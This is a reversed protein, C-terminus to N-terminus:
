QARRDVNAEDFTHMRRHASWASELLAMGLTAGTGEGLRMNLSLLPELGLRRLQLVHGPERSLHGAFLYEKVGPAIAEAILAAAGVTFGDLVVPLRQQAARIIAGVLAATELGGIKQLVGLPDSHHPKNVDLANQIVRIKRAIGDSSIGTGPGTSEAVACSCMVSTIASSSTTNAIGMEGLAIITPESSHEDILSAGIAMAKVAEKEDMAPGITFDRTGQRVSQSRINTLEVPPDVVGVDVVTLSAQVSAALANIAAGELDFNRLMQATV